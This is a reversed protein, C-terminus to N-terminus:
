LVNQFQGSQMSHFFKLNTSLCVSLRVSSMLVQQAADECGFFLGRCLMARAQRSAKESDPTVTKSSKLAANNLTCPCVSPSGVNRRRSSRDSDFYCTPLCAAGM